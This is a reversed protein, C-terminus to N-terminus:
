DALTQKYKESGLRYIYKKDCKFLPPLNNRKAWRNASQVTNYLWKWEDHTGGYPREKKLSNYVKEVSVKTRVQRCFSYLIQSLISYNKEKPMIYEKGDYKFRYDKLQIVSKGKGTNQKESYGTRELFGLAKKYINERINIFAPAWRRNIEEANISRDTNKLVEAFTEFFREEAQLFSDLYHKDDLLTLFDHREKFWLRVESEFLVPDDKWTPIADKDPIASQNVKKKMSHSAHWVAYAKNAGCELLKASNKARGLKGHPKTHGAWKM